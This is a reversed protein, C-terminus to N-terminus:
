ENDLVEGLTKNSKFKELQQIDLDYKVSTKIIAPDLDNSRIMPFKDTINFVSEKIVSFKKDLQLETAKSAIKNFKQMFETELNNSASLSKFIQDKLSNLSIDKRSESLSFDIKYLYFKNCIPNDLQQLSSISIKDTFGVNHSKVEVSANGIVFDQKSGLAGIWSQLGLNYGHIPIFHEALAYLEGMLGILEQDTMGKKITTFLDSWERLIKFINKILDDGELGATQEALHECLYSFKDINDEDQLTMILLSNNRVDVLHIHIGNFAPLETTNNIKPLQVLLLYKGIPSKSQTLFRNGPILQFGEPYIAESSLELWKNVDSM